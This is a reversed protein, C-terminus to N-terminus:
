VYGVRTGKRLDQILEPTVKPNLKKLMYDDINSYLLSVIKIKKNYENFIYSKFYHLVTSVLIWSVIFM